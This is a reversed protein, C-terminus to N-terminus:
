LRLVSKLHRNQYSEAKRRERLNVTQGVKNIVCRGQDWILEVYVVISGSKYNDRANGYYGWARLSANSSPDFLSSLSPDDYRHAEKVIDLVAKGTSKLIGELSPLMRKSYDCHQKM